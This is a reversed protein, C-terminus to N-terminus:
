RIVEVIGAQLLGDLVTTFDREVRDLDVTCEKAIASCISEVSLGCTIDQVFRSTLADMHYYTSSTLNLAISGGDDVSSISVKDSVRYM